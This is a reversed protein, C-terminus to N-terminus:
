RVFMDGEYLSPRHAPHIDLKYICSFAGQALSSEHLFPLIMPRALTRPLIRGSFVPACFEWQKDYFENVAVRTDFIEDLADITLPLLNDVHRSQLQDYYLFRDICDARNILVLISFIKPADEFIFEMFDDASYFPVLANVISRILISALVRRFDAEPIFKQGLHNQKRISNLRRQYEAIPHLTSM